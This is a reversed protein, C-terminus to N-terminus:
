VFHPPSTKPAMLLVSEKLDILPNEFNLISPLETNPLVFTIQVSALSDKRRVRWAETVACHEHDGDIAAESLTTDAIQTVSSPGHHKEIVEGPHLPCVAHDAEILHVAEVGLAVLYFALFAGVFHTNKLLLSKNKTKLKM